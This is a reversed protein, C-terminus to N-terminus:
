EIDSINKGYLQIAKKFCEYYMKGAKEWSNDYAAKEMNAIMQDIQSKPMNMFLEMNKRLGEPDNPESVLGIGYDNIYQKFSSVNTAIIPKRYKISQMFVGSQSSFYKYPFIVADAAGYLYDIDDEDIFKIIQVYREPKKILKQYKEFSEGNPMAGAIIIRCNQEISNVANILDDLGKQERIMGFFLFTPIDDYLIGLKEFCKNKKIHNYSLDTGHHIITIKNENVGFLETLQKKNNQSHVILSRTNDYVKKLSAKSWYLSKIPPIVDHVTLVVVNEKCLKKIFFQEVTSLTSQISIVDIDNERIYKNRILINSFAVYLRNVVWKIRKKRIPAPVKLDTSVVVNSDMQSLYINKYDTLYHIEVNENLKNLANCIKHSYQGFGSSNEYVLIKIKKKNM